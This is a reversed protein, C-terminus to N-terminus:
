GMDLGDLEAFRVNEPFQLKGAEKVKEFAVDEQLQYHCLAQNYLVDATNGFALNSHAYYGLAKQYAGLEYHLGGIEYALDFPEQISFYMDWVRGLTELLKAREVMTIHLAMKQIQPLFRITYTSDYCSLHILALIEKLNLTAGHNYTHRKIGNFDDPGFRNVFSEFSAATERYAGADKLILLCVV